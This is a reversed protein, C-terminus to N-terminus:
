PHCRMPRSQGLHHPPREASRALRPGLEFAIGRRRWRTGPQCYQLAGPEQGQDLAVQEHQAQAVAAAPDVPDKVVGGVQAAGGVPGVRVVAVM